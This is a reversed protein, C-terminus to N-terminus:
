ILRTSINGINLNLLFVIFHRRQMLLGYDPMMVWIMFLNLLKLLHLILYMSINMLFVIMSVIAGILIHYIVYLEKFLIRNLSLLFLALIYTLFLVIVMLLHDLYFEQHMDNSLGDQSRLFVQLLIKLTHIILMLLFLQIMGDLILVMVFEMLSTIKINLHRFDLKGFNLMLVLRNLFLSFM